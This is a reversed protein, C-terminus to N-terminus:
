KRVKIKKVKSWTGYVKKGNKSTYARVKIWYYSNKDLGKITETLKKSFKSEYGFFRRNDCYRIQYGKIGNMKKIKIVIKKKKINRLSKISARAPKKVTEKTNSTTPQIKDSEKQTYYRVYDVEMQTNVNAAPLQNGTLNGSCAVNLVFYYKNHTETMTPKTIDIISSYLEGDIYFAIKEKTKLVGYTHWETKGFKTKRGVNSYIDSKWWENSNYYPSNDDAYHLCYQAFDQTNWSELIDIEGCFPWGKPEDAGLMWFAPWIGNEAPLKIRAECYGYGVKIKGSTNIRGSSYKFGNISEGKAILKLTGNNVQVNDERNTYYQKENNGWGPNSGGNGIDYNWFSTNLADGTFEDSWSIDFSDYDINRPLSLEAKASVSGIALFALSFGILSMVTIIKKM